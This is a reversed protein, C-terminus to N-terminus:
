TATLSGPLVPKRFHSKHGEQRMSQGILRSKGWYWDTHPVSMGLVWSSRGCPLARQHLWAQAEQATTRSCCWQKGIDESSSGSTLFPVATM